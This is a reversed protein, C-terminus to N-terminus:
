WDARFSVAQFYVFSVDVADLLTKSRSSQVLSDLSGSFYQNTGPLSVTGLLRTYFYNYKSFKRTAFPAEVM